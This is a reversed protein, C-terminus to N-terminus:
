AEIENRLSGFRAGAKGFALDTAEMPSIPDKCIIYFLPCGDQGNFLALNEPWDEIFKLTKDPTPKMLKLKGTPEKDADEAKCYNIFAIINVLTINAVVLTRSTRNSHRAIYCVTMMEVEARTSVYAGQGGRGPKCMTKCLTKVEMDDMPSLSELTIATKAM